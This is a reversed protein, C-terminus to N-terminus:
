GSSSPVNRSAPEPAASRDDSDHRQEAWTRLVNFVEDLWRIGAPVRIQTVPEPKRGGLGFTKFVMIPAPDEIPTPRGYWDDYAPEKWVAHFDQGAITFFWHVKEAGGGGTIKVKGRKMAPRRPLEEGELFQALAAPFQERAEEATLRGSVKDYPITGTRPHRVRRALEAMTMIPDDHRHFPDPVTLSKRGVKCVELWCGHPRVFDGPTFDEPRWVKRGSAAILDEWYAIEELTEVMEAALVAQGHESVGISVEACGHTVKGTQEVPIGKATLAATRDELESPRGEIHPEVLWHEIRGEVAKEIDRLRKELKQIRRLTTGHAERRNQFNRAAQARGMLEGATDILAFARGERKWLRDLLNKHRQYPHEGSDAHGM